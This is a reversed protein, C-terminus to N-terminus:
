FSNNSFPSLYKFCLFPFISVLYGCAGFAIYLTTVLFLTLKFVRSLFVHFQIDVKM